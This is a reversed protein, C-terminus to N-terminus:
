ESGLSKLFVDRLMETERNAKNGKLEEFRRRAQRAADARGAQEYLAALRYWAEAFSPDLGVAKELDATAIKRDGKRQHVKSLALYCLSCRPIARAAISLDNLMRDYDQSQLKILCAAHLYNLYPLPSPDRLGQAATREAEEIKGQM